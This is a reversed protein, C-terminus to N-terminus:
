NKPFIAVMGLKSTTYFDAATQKQVEPSALDRNQAM